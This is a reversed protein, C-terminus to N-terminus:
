RLGDFTSRIEKFQNRFLVTDMSYILFNYGQKLRAKLQKRGSVSVGGNVGAQSTAEAVRGYADMMRPHEVEGPIGMSQSLDLPGVSIVDVHSVGAISDVNELAETSECQLVVLTDRNSEALYSDVEQEGYDAARPLIVGRSGVPAYKAFRVVKVAQKPDEVQPVMIGSAGRDLCKLIPERRIEPVRVITDIDRADAARLLDPLCPLDIEGHEMDLIVFDLRAVGILEVIQPSPITMLTGIVPSQENLKKRIM